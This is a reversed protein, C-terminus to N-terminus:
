KFDSEQVRTSTWMSGAPHPRKLSHPRDEHAERPCPSPTRSRVTWIGTKSPSCPRGFRRGCAAWPSYTSCQVGGRPVVLSVRDDGTLVVLLKDHRGAEDRCSAVWQGPRRWSWRWPWRVRQRVEVVLDASPCPRSNSRPRTRVCRGLGAPWLCSGAM